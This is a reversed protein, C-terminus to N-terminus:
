VKPNVSEARAKSTPIARDKATQYGKPSNDGDLDNVLWHGGPGNDSHGTEVVDFFEDNSDGLSLDGRIIQLEGMM